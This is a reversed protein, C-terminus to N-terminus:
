SDSNTSEIVLSPLRWDAAMIRSIRSDKFRLSLLRCRIYDEILKWVVQPSSFKGAYTRKNREKWIFYITTSFYLRATIADMSNYNDNWVNEIWRAIFTQSLEGCYFRCTHQVYNWIYTSYSCKFFLHEHTEDESRCLICLNSDGDSSHGTFFRDKTYLRNHLALWTVFAHRPIHKSFWIINTCISLPAPPLLANYAQKLCFKGTPSLTWVVKDRSGTNIPPAIDVM